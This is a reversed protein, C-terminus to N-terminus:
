CPIKYLQDFRLSRLTIRLTERLERLAGKRTGKRMKATLSGISFIDSSLGVCGLLSECRRRPGRRGPLPDGRKSIRMLVLYAGRFGLSPLGSVQM